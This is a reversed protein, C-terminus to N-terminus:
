SGSVHYQSSIFVIVKNNHLHWFVYTKDRNNVM